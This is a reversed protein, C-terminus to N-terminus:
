PSPAPENFPAITQQTPQIVVASEPAGNNNAPAVQVTHKRRRAYGGAAADRRRCKVGALFMTRQMPNVIYGM